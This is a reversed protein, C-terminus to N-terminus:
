CNEKLPSEPTRSLDPMNLFRKIRESEPDHRSELQKLIAQEEPSDIDINERGM